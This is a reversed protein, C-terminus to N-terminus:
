QSATAKINPLLEGIDVGQIQWMRLEKLAAAKANLLAHLKITFAATDIPTFTELFHLLGSKVSSHTDNEMTASMMNDLIRKYEHSDITNKPLVEYLSGALNLIHDTGLLAVLEAHAAAYQAKLHKIVKTIATSPRKKGHQQQQQLHPPSTSSPLLLSTELDQFAARFEEIRQMKLTFEEQTMLPLVSTQSRRIELLELLYKEIHAIMMVSGEQQQEKSMDDSPCSPAKISRQLCHVEEM